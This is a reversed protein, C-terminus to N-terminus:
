VQQQDVVIFLVPRRVAVAGVLDGVAPRLLMDSWRNGRGPGTAPAAGTGVLRFGDVGGRSGAAWVGAFAGAPACGGRFGLAGGAGRGRVSGVAKASSRGVGLVPSRWGRVSVLGAWDGAAPRSLIGASGLGGGSGVLVAEGRGGSEQSLGPFILWGRVVRDGRPSRGPWFGGRGLRAGRGGFLRGCSACGCVAGFARLALGAGVLWFVVVGGPLGALKAWAGCEAGVLVWRVWAADGAGGVVASGLGGDCGFLVVAWCGGRVRVLGPFGAGRRM